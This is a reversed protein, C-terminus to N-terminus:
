TIKHKLYNAGGILTAIIGGVTMPHELTVAVEAAPINTLLSYWHWHANVADVMGDNLYDWLYASLLVGGAYGSGLAVSGLILRGEDRM